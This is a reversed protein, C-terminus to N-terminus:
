APHDDDNIFQGGFGRVFEAASLVATIKIVATTFNCITLISAVVFLVDAHNVKRESEYVCM